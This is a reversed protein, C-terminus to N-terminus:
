THRARETVWRDLDTIKEADSGSNTMITIKGTVPEIELRGIDIGSSRAAKVARRIDTERFSCLNAHCSPHEMLSIIRCSREKRAHCINSNLLQGTRGEPTATEQASDGENGAGITQEEKWPPPWAGV